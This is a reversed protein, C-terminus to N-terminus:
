DKELSQPPPQGDASGRDFWQRVRKGLLSIVDWEPLEEGSRITYINGIVSYVESIILLNMGWIFLTGADQGIAKSAAAMVVPLVILSLKSIIGYKAKNSTISEGITHAKAVGTVFDTVVLATFISFVEVNLDVYALVGAVANMVILFLMKATSTAESM